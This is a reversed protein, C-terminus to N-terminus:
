CKSPPRQNQGIKDYIGKCVVSLDITQHEVVVPLVKTGKIEVSVTAHCTASAMSDLIFLVSGYAAEFSQFDESQNSVKELAAKALSLFETICHSRVSEVM